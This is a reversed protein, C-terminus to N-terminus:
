QEGEREDRPFAIKHVREYEQQLDFIWDKLIDLQIIDPQARYDESFRVAGEANVYVLRGMTM